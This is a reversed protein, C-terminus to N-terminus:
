KLLFHYILSDVKGKLEIKYYEIEKEPKHYIRIYIHNNLNIEM